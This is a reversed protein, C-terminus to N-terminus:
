SQPQLTRLYPEVLAATTVFEREPAIYTAAVARDDLPLIYSVHRTPVGAAEYALELRGLPPSGPVVRADIVRAMPLAASTHAILQDLLVDTVEPAEGTRTTGRIVQIVVSGMSGAIPYWLSGVENPRGVASVWAPGITMTWGDGEIKRAEGVEIADSDDPASAVVAWTTAATVAFVVVGAM